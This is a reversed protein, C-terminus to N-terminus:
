GEQVPPNVWHNIYAISVVPVLIIAWAYVFAIASSKLDEIM